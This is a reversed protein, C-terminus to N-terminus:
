ENLINMLKVLRRWLAIRPLKKKEQLHILEMAIRLIITIIFIGVQDSGKETIGLRNRVKSFLDAILSTLQRQVKQVMSERLISIWIGGDAQRKPYM